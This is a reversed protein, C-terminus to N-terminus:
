FKWTCKWALRVFSFWEFDTGSFYKFFFFCIWERLGVVLDSKINRFINYCCYIFLTFCNNSPDVASRNIWGKYEACRAMCSAADTPSNIGHQTSLPKQNTWALLQADARVLLDSLYFILERWRISKKIVYGWLIQLSLLALLQQRVGHVCIIGKLM